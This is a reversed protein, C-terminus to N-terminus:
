AAHSYTIQKSIILRAVNEAEDVFYFTISKGNNLKLLVNSFPAGPQAVIIDEIEHINIIKNVLLLPYRVSLHNEFIKVKHHLDYNLFVGMMTLLMSGLIFTWLGISVDSPFLM